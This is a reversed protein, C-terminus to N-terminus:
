APPAAPPPSVPWRGAPGPERRLTGLVRLLAIPNGLLMSNVILSHPAQYRDYLPRLRRQLRRVHIWHVQPFLHHTLHTAATFHNVWSVLRHLRGRPELYTAQRFPHRLDSPAHDTLNMLFSALLAVVMAAPLFLLLTQRWSLALLVAIWAPVAWRTIAIEWYEAPKTRRLVRIYPPLPSLPLYGWASRAMELGLYRVLALWGRVGPAGQIRALTQQPDDDPDNYRHHEWHHYRVELPSTLVLVGLARMCANAWGRSFPPWHNFYHIAVDLALSSYISWPVLLVAKWPWPLPGYVLLYTGAILAAWEAVLLANARNQRRLFLPHRRQLRMLRRALHRAHRLDAEISPSAAQPGKDATDPDAM